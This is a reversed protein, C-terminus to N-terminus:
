GQQDLAYDIARSLDRELDEIVLRQGNVFLTPTGTLGLRRAEGESRAVTDASGKEGYCREFSATDLGLAAALVTPSERSLEDQREFALDHYDWFREQEHACAAGRAVLRSIGSRNVPYDKYVFRIKDGYRETITRLVGSARKCHPCQFDSFEVITVQADATGKFPYGQIDIDVRPPIPTRALLEFEHGEKMEEVLATKRAHIAQETLLLAIRDRVEELPAPIRAKNATYFAEIDADRPRDVALLAARTTDADEGSRETEQRVRLDFLADDAINRLSDFHQNEAEYLAQRLAPPLDETYYDFGDFRFLPGDDAVAPLASVLAAVTILFRARPFWQYM